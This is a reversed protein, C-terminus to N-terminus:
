VLDAQPRSGCCLGWASERALCAAEHAARDADAVAKEVAKQQDYLSDMDLELKGELAWTVMLERETPLVGPLNM